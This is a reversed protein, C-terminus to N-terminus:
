PTAVADALLAGVDFPVAGPLRVCASAPVVVQDAWAGDYDFGMTLVASCDDADGGRRCPPCKGCRRGAFLVVREGPTFDRVGAGLASIRGSAEHGPTFPPPTRLPLSGDVLHVDSACIGCAHVDVVVEGEGPTPAPLDQLELRGTGLFRMARM